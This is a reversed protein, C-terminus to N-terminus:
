STSCYGYTNDGVNTCTDPARCTNGSIACLQVCKTGSSLSLCTEGPACNNNNMCDTGVPAAGTCDCYPMGFVSDYCSLVNGSPPCGTQAIPDCDQPAIDCVKFATPQMNMDRAAASCVDNWCDAKTLCLKYCRGFGSTNCEPQCYLGAKCDDKTLDCIDNIDKSGATQNCAAMGQVINCRGCECGFQCAPTCPQGAAPTTTCGADPTPINCTPPAPAADGEYCSNNSSVCHFGDPCVGGAACKFGGQAINPKYCGDLLLPTGVALLAVIRWVEM